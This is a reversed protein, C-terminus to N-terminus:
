LFKNQEKNYMHVYTCYRCCFVDKKKEFSSFVPHTNHSLLLCGADRIVPEAFLDEVDRGWLDVHLYIDM